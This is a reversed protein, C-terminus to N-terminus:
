DTMLADAADFARFVVRKLLPDSPDIQNVEKTPPAMLHSHWPSRPLTARSGLGRESRKMSQELPQLDVPDKERLETSDM